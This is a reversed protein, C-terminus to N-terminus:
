FARIARVNLMGDKGINNQTGLSFNQNWANSSSYQSSSWFYNDALGDVHIKNIFLQNLEDRSPLFWDDKGMNIYDDCAFAAPATSELALIRRTSRRGTGIDYQIVINPSGFSWVLYPDAPATTSYWGVPAAELYHATVGTTDTEHLYLTFPTRGSLSDAVYFITGGGPGTDGLAYQHGCGNICSLSEFHDHGLAPTGIRLEPETCRDCEYTDLGDTACTEPITSVFISFDHGLAAVIVEGCDTCTQATTCTTAAGPTHTHSTEGGNPDQCATFTFTIVALLATFVFLASFKPKKFNKMKFVGEPRLDQNIFFGM